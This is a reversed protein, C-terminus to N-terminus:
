SAAAPSNGTGGAKELLMFLWAPRPRVHRQWRWIVRRLAHGLLNPRIEGPLEHCATCRWPLNAWANGARNAARYLWDPAYGHITGGLCNTAAVYGPFMRSVAAEDFYHLHEMSNGIFGCQACKYHENWVRQRYPVTVLLYRRSVRGLERVANALVEEPMHELVETCVVLDFSDDVFPLAAATAFALRYSTDREFRHPLDIGVVDYREALLPTMRLANFGVELCSSADPPLLGRTLAFRENEKEFVDSM